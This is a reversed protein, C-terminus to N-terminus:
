TTFVLYASNLYEQTGTYFGYMLPRGMAVGSFFDLFIKEDMKFSQFILLQGFKLNTLIQVLNDFIKFIPFAKVFCKLIEFCKEYHNFLSRKKHIKIYPIFIISLPNSNYFLYKKDKCTMPTGTGITTRYTAHLRLHLRM